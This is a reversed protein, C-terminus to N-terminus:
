RDTRARVELAPMQVRQSRRTVPTQQVVQVTQAPHADACTITLCIAIVAHRTTVM